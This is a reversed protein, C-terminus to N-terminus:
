RIAQFTKRLWESIANTVDPSLNRDTLTAYESVEGTTAPVMVHNVGRVIVLEIAKSKSEKHALNAFRDAHAVPVQRDLEGHIILLPQRVDDLAKAPDFTLWSQFWPTDAQKRINPPLAEWGKGTLVAAQIQKQLVVRQQRVEPTLDLMDLEQQQQELVLEAGKSSPGSVTVLGAFKRERGAALLAVWAGDGHAVLAVREPDVDKRRSLWRFVSRADEAHDPLTASESRGGSQGYGRKDYRVVLFGAEALAGALKGLAPIGLAFGERDPVASGSLLIVAPLRPAAQKSPRTVTAGLNFGEAPITVAEDGPNSYIETRSTSSALDIRVVDLLQSPVSFRLLLGTDDAATLTVPVDGNQYGIVIDYRRVNLFTNGIQMREASVAAVRMEVEGQLVVYARFRTGASTSALRRALAAYSGFVANTAVLSQPSVAHSAKFPKGSQTGETIATGATFTTRVMTDGGAIDADLLFSEPSWDSRYKFEARRIIINLPSSLRGESVVRLGDTGEQVTVDERGIPQGRLFVTYGASATGPASTNQPQPQAAATSQSAM